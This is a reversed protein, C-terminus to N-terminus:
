VRPSSQRRHVFLMRGAAVIRCMGDSPSTAVGLRDGEHRARWPGPRDPTKMEDLDAILDLLSTGLARALGQLTALRVHRIDQALLKYLESRSIGARSAFAARTVGLAQIRLEVLEALRRPKLHM